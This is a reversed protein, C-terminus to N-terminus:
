EEKLLRKEAEQAQHVQRQEGPPVSCGQTQVAVHVLSVTVVLALLLSGHSHWGALLLCPEGAGGLWM